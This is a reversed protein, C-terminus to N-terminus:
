SLADAVDNHKGPRYVWEFDFEGLFEQWRAQKASLKQQTKFYTNAVNDTVVTFKTGLLYHRWAELCHIVATMEKEHTNYRIETDKLKRSEFAVLHKDQVLVVGLARDSADIQVEFPRDFKRNDMQIMGQSIVHGLFTIQECCFECKEKKTYLEYERLKKNLARYDVRMRISGDQKRQFLVPSGYPVKSPQVLGAVLLGDLQKRLEALEASNIRYPAQSLSRAGPELEIAHDIALRPPLKKPLEPPFVDKFEKLLEAVRNPVEQVVSPKIENKVQLTSILSDKKETTRVSDMANELLLFEMGLIVDFDDLPVVILNCKGTWLGVKLEVCVVCQIPKAESNVAKIRNSHHALTLGLKQVERDTVFNHTAGTDVMAM